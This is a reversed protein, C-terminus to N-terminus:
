GLTENVLALGAELKSHWNQRPHRITNTCIRFLCVAERFALSRENWRFRALVADRLLSYYDRCNEAQRERAFCASWRLHALFNGVDLMPDGPAIDEFDVLAIRGDEFVLMQDDYFDNHAVCSPSWFQVFADLSNAIKGLSRSADEFDRLNHRFSRLASRYARGLDFPRAGCKDLSVRWLMELGNLLRDPDPTRGKGVLERLNRGNVETFWSVGGDAWFGALGPVIFGSQASIRYAALFQELDAPRVVRAYLRAKGIKHRLVARYEPRYRILQVGARYVPVTLVHDNVLRLASDPQAADFLGPLRRDDPYRFVQPPLDRAITAVFYEPPQYQDRPWEVEYSVTASNGISHNFHHIRIRYPDPQQEGMSGIIAQWVWDPDLLNPLQPLSPDGPFEVQEFHPSAEPALSM